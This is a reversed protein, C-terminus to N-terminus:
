FRKYYWLSRRRTKTSKAVRCGDIVRDSSMVQDSDIGRADDVHLGRDLIHDEISSDYATVVNVEGGQQPSPGEVRM